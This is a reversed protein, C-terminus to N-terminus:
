RGFAPAGGAPSGAGQSRERAEGKAGRSRERRRPLRQDPRPTPRIRSRTRGEPRRLREISRRMKQNSPRTRRNAGRTPGNGGRPPGIGGRTPGDTRRSPSVLDRTPGVTGASPGDIGRSPGVAARTPGVLFHTPGDFPKPPGFAANTRADPGGRPRILPNWPASRSGTPGVAARPHASPQSARTRKPPPVKPPVEPHPPRTRTRRRRPEIAFQWSSRWRPRSGLFATGSGSRCRSASIRGLPSWASSISSLEAIGFCQLRQRAGRSGSRTIGRRCCGSKTQVSPEVSLM